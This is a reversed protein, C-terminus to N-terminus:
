ITFVKSYNLSILLLMDLMEWGVSPGISTRVLPRAITTAEMGSHDSDSDDHYVHKEISDTSLLSSDEQKEEDNGSESTTEM